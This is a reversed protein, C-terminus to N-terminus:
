DENQTAASSTIGAKELAKRCTCKSPGEMQGTIGLLLGKIKDMSKQMTVVVEKTNLEEKSIGAAQNTVVSVLAYCIGSERALIAEPMATMGVLDAGISGFFRIEAATEYRPGEVCLYTGHSHIGVNVMEATEIIETRLDPCFPETFDVHTVPDGDFFTHERNKTFDIIQDPIVIDGTAFTLNIGGVASVAIIKDVGLKQMGLINARYNVRHPPINHLHSHRPLFVIEENGLRGITYSDSPEGFPTKIKKTEHITLGALKYLGSGGIIGIM